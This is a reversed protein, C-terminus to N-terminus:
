EYGTAGTPYHNPNAASVKLNFNDLFNYKYYDKQMQYIIERWDGCEIFEEDPAPTGDNYWYTISNQGQVDLNYKNNHAEVEKNLVTISRYYNPKVDIAYRMHIALDNKNKGWVTFDNKLNALNPTNNFSTFLSSDSFKYSYPTAAM